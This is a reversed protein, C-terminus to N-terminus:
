SCIAKATKTRCLSVLRRKQPNVTSLETLGDISAKELLDQEKTMEDQVDSIKGLFVQPTGLRGRVM